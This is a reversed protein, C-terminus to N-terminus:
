KKRSTAGVAADAFFRDLSIRLVAAISGAIVLGPQTKGREILHVTQSTIGAQAALDDLSMKLTTRRDRVLAGFSSTIARSPHNAALKQRPM